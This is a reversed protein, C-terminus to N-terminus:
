ANLEEEFLAPCLQRLMATYEDAAKPWAWPKITNRLRVPRANETTRPLPPRSSFLDSFEQRLMREDWEKIAAAEDERPLPVRCAAFVAKDLHTKIQGFAGNFVAGLHPTSLESCTDANQKKLHQGMLAAFFACITAQAPRTIDGLLFEHGDHLLFLQALRASGTEELIAKAGVVSHQAVSYPGSLTQGNFRAIKALGNPMDQRLAESTFKPSILDVLPGSGILLSSPSPTSM